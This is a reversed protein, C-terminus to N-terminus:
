SEQPQPKNPDTNHRRKKSSGDRLDMLPKEFFKYLLTSVVIVITWFVAYKMLGDGFSTAPFHLKIVQAVLALNILYMSYSVLSIHTLVKGIRTRFKKVGDAFPLLLAMGISILCFYVTKMFFSDINKPMYLIFICIVMGIIFFHIRFKEWIQQYYFKFYAALVGYGIADLRCVVLKRFTVDWWFKDLQQGSISIRYILPLVILLAAVLLFAQKLPMERIAFLCIVPLFLYFWEEVSLSWSEWFFGVLPTSFNQLFVFFQWGFNELNGDTFGFKVFLYNLLLILYYAPITRFWRRKWFTLLQKGDFSGTQSIEKLLMSGILFGSLVFFLDVGDPLPIWPFADLPGTLLFGGHSIVVILIAVARFVDLGYVRKGYDINLSLLKKM